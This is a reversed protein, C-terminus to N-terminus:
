KKGGEYQGAVQSIRALVALERMENNYYKDLLKSIQGMADKANMGRGALSPMSWRFPRPPPVPSLGGAPDARGPVREPVVSGV